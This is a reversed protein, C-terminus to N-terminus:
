PNTEDNLHAELGDKSARFNVGVAAIAVLATLLGLDAAIGLWFIRDIREAAMLEGPWGFRLLWLGFVHVGILAIAAGIQAWLRVVAPNM